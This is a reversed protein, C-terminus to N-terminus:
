NQDASDYGLIMVHFVADKAAGTAPNKVLIQVASASASAVEAYATATECTVVVLPARAFPVVPSLTYDGTGNDVLTADFQGISIAATASVGDVKLALLRPLRQTGKIERLM